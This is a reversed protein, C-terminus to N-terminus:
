KDVLEECLCFLLSHFLPLAHVDIVHAQIVIPKPGNPKEKKPRARCTRENHIFIRAYIKTDVHFFHGFIIFYLKLVALLFIAYIEDLRYRYIWIFPIIKERM